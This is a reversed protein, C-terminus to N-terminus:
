SSSANRSAHTTPSQVKNLTQWAILMAMVVTKGTGTAMKIGLCPLGENHESNAAELLQRWDASAAQRGAVEAIFIATEAAERQCFLVRNERTADAWHLLLRRSTPTAGEYNMLRWLEVASRLDNILQNKEIREHTLDFDFADQLDLAIKRAGKKTQPVPIFSESPRRGDLVVGTPGAPGLEFFRSPPDFPGNLM